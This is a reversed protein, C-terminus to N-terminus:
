HILKFILERYIEATEINSVNIKKSQLDAHKLHHINMIVKGSSYNRAAAVYEKALFPHIGLVSAVSQDNINSGLTHVMLLKTLYTYLYGILVPPPYNKDGALYDAIKISKNFDRFSIAKSLEFSNYEKNVGVNEEVLKEDIHKEKINLIIKNIENNIRELNNGLFESLLFTAKETITYGLEKVHNQIWGPVKNDYIKNSEMFIGGADFAKALKSRKDFKKHKHAFVLITSPQPSQIYKMLLGVEEEKKFDLEQAEKILILQRQGMMPFARAASVIQGIQADKGYMVIQNFGREHEPIANKEIYESVQDIYFSEEGALFYITAYNGSKLDKLIEDPNKAM